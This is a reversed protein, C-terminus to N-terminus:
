LPFVNSGNQSSLDIRCFKDVRDGSVQLLRTVILGSSQKVIRIATFFGQDDCRRGPVSEDDKVFPIVTWTDTRASTDTRRGFSHDYKSNSFCRDNGTRRADLVVGNWFDFDQIQLSRDVSHVQSGPRNWFDSRDDV